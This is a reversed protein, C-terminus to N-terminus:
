SQMWRDLDSRRFYCRAGPTSQEFPISRAATLKRITSVPRGLYDAAEHTDLWRDDAGGNLRTAIAAGLADVFADPIGVSARVPGYPVSITM